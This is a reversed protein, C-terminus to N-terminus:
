LIDIFFGELTVSIRDTLITLECSPEDLELLKLYELVITLLGQNALLEVYNKFIRLSTYYFKGNILM